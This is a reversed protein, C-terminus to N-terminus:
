FIVLYAITLALSLVLSGVFTYLFFLQISNSRRLDAHEQAVKSLTMKKLKAM